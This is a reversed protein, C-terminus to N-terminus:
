FCQKKKLNHHKLVRGLNRQGGTIEVPDYENGGAEM